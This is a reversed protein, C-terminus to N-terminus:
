GRPLLGLAPNLTPQLGSHPDHRDIGGMREPELVFHPADLRSLEDVERDEGRIREGARGLLDARDVDPPRHVLPTRQRHFGPSAKL